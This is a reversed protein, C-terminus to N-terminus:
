WCRLFPRAPAAERNGVPGQTSGLFTGQAPGQAPHQVRIIYVGQPCATLEYEVSGMKFHPARIIDIVQGFKM